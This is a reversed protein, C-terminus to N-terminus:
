LGPYRTPLLYFTRGINGKSEQGFLDQPERPNRGRLGAACFLLISSPPGPLLTSVFVTPDPESSFNNSVKKERKRERGKAEKKKKWKKEKKKKQQQWMIMMMMMMWGTYHMAPSSFFFFLLVNFSTSTGHQRCSQNLCSSPPAGAGGGEGRKSSFPRERTSPVGEINM